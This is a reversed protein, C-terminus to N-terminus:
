QVGAYALMHSIPILNEATKKNKKKNTKKESFFLAQFKKHIM